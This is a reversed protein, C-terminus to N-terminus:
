ETANAPADPADPADPPLVSPLAELMRNLASHDDVHEEFARMHRPADMVSAGCLATLAVVIWLWFARM